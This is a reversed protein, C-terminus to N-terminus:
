CSPHTTYTCQAMGSVMIGLVWGKTCTVSIVFAARKNANQVSRVRKILQGTTIPLVRADNFLIMYQSFSHVLHQYFKIFDCDNIIYM